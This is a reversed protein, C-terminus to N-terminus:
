VTQQTKQAGYGASVLILYWFSGHRKLSWWFSNCLHYNNRYMGQSASSLITREALM